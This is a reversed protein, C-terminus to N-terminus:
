KRGRLEKIRNQVDRYGFDWQAIQSYAKLADEIDGKQELSRGYWYYMEKSKDDGEGRYGDILNRLTDAAEDVFEARLFSRGLLLRSDDRFKADNQSQQLLPIAEEHRGLEFMRKASEFKYRNDTPYAKAAGEFHALEKQAKERRFDALEKKATGDTDNAAMQRLMREGRAFQRLEVEEAMFKWRYNKTRAYAKNLVDLAENEYKLEGTKTLTEVLNVLKGSVDPEAEYAERAREIRAKLADVTRIDADEELLKRQEDANRVSDRFNSGKRDYGGERMTMQAALERSEHQLNSDEPRLAAAQALAEGALKFEGVSKYIEKLAIFADASQKPQALMERFYMPGIWTVVDSLEAKAAAKALLEMYSVSGPDYALLKSANIVNQVDDKSKKKLGMAKFGGLPKGGTAKRTLAIKRLETHVAVNNPDHELGSLFMEIAYDWQSAAAVKRAREYLQEAKKKEQPSPNSPDSM